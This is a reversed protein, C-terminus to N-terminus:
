KGGGGMNPLHHKGYAFVDIRTSIGSHVMRTAANEKAEKRLFSVVSFSYKSLV